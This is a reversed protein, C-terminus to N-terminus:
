DAHECPWGPSLPPSLLEVEQYLLPMLTGFFPITAAGSGPQLMLAVRLPPRRWPQSCRGNPVQDELHMNQEWKM